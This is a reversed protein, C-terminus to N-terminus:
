GPPVLDDNIFDYDLTGLIINSIEEEINKVKNNLKKCLAEYQEIEIVDDLKLSISKRLSDL